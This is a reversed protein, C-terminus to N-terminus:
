LEHKNLVIKIAWCPVDYSNNDDDIFVFAVHYDPINEPYVGNGDTFYIIGKLNTFEKKLRLMDIYEFAPRFDTGGLGHIGFENIYNDFEDQSTIKIDEQIAADCQIIHINIKSFYSDTSKLINWTKQIFYKVTDGAVSGSTDIVIVFEKIRKEEKYELPEILPMNKYLNMGYTYYIYDFESDNVKMVEGMVSFRRLFSSYDYKERNIENLYQIMIGPSLGQKKGFSEIEIQIRNSINRWDTESGLYQISDLKNKSSNYITPKKYILNKKDNENIGQIYKNFSIGTKKNDTMYWIRHDDAYFLANIKNITEEDINKDIYYHYLREATIKSINNKLENIISIQKIARETETSKLGLENIINEVTIDCAINWIPQNIMTNHVFMHRFISHLVIHLYNRVVISQETKYCNLIYKPCYFLNRGDTGLQLEKCENLILRNLAIDLFRLNVLLQNRSMVLCKKALISIKEQIDDM